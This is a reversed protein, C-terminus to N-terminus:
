DREVKNDVPPISQLYAFIASAEKDTIRTYPMMPYRLAEGNPRQGTKLTRIFEEETWNGIGTPHPTLNATKVVEGELNLPSNGGSLYGLTNEPNLYDVKKFDPSHCPFCDLNVVLYRGLAVRDSSDPVEIKEEPMPFPKWALNCLAKTLISPKSPITEVKAPAVMRHNSKLFAIISEMDYDSIHPLKVMYAPAYDGNRKIGTRLLYALESDTYEGIGYDPDQTINPAHIEGFEAPADTMQKGTLKQTGPNLHCSACLMGVLREGQALKASDPEVYNRPETTEYSPIGKIQVFALFGGIVIVLLGILIVAVKLFKKM